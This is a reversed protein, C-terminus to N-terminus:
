EDYGGLDHPVVDREVVHRGLEIIMPAPGDRRKRRQECLIAMAGRDHIGRGIMDALVERMVAPGYADLLKITYGVMSGLNRGADVWRELLVHIDPVEVRLRDRGKLSRAKAKEELIVARHERLEIAQHRGWSREHRAVEQAGDLLRVTRDDAALTITRRAYSPPVSYRNTDLKVFATKDVSVPGVTETEPLPEPLKLM